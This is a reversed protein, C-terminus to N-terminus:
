FKSNLFQLLIKYYEDPKEAWGFHGVGKMEHYHSNPILNAMAKMVVPPCTLDVEGCILLTPIKITPLIDERDYEALAYIAAKFADNRMLKVNTVIWDVIPGQAGPGMVAKLLDPAYESILKGHQLIPAMRTTMFYEKWEPGSHNFTHMTASLVLGDIHKPMLNYALQAVCGGTSHGLLINNKTKTHEVLSLLAEAASEITLHVPIQSIGYGPMDWAICRYGSLTLQEILYRWYEKAGYAGHLLYVTTDSGDGHVSYDPIKM